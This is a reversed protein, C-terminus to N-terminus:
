SALRRAPAVPLTFCFTSGKGQESEVWIRGGHADVIGKSIYLGLGAGSYGAGTGRFFRQFIQKMDSSRIGPGTDKVAFRVEGECPEASMTITGDPGTWARANSLLNSFVQAIRERDCHVLTDPCSVVPIIQAVKMAGPQFADIADDILSTVTCAGLDLSLLNKDIRAVDLLDGILRQMRLGARRIGQTIHKVRAPVANDPIRLLLETNALVGALPNRLDHSVIAMMEDRVRIARQAEGYLTANDFAAGARRGLDEALAMDLEDKDAGPSTTIFTLVGFTCRRATLPVSILSRIGLKELDSGNVFGLTQGVSVGNGESFSRSAGTRAVDIMMSTPPAPDLGRRLEDAVAPHIHQLAVLRMTGMSDEHERSTFHLVFGDAVAPMILRGLADIAADIDLTSALATGAQLMIQQAKLRRNRESVDRLAVVSGYAYGDPRVIPTREVEVCRSVGHRDRLWTTPERMVKDCLEDPEAREIELRMVEDLPKGLAEIGHWGTLREAEDNMLRVYEDRDVAIVADAVSQITAALWAESESLRRMVRHRFLAMELAIKLEREKFPKLVYGYPETSEARRVTPEDGFATLYVIPVDLHEHIRAAAEIGDIDGKLKIDMLVLAPKLELAKKIADSGTALTAPVHYGLQELREQLDLAVIQEDEVVLVSYKEERSLMM